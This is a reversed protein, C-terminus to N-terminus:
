RAIMKDIGVAAGTVPFYIPLYRSANNIGQKFAFMKFHLQLAGGPCLIVSIAPCIIGDADTKKNITWPRLSCGSIFITPYSYRTTQICLYKTALVGVYKHM